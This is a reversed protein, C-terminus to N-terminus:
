FLETLPLITIEWVIRFIILYFVLIGAIFYRIWPRLAGVRMEVPNSRTHKWADPFLPRTHGRVHGSGIYNLLKGTYDNLRKQGKKNDFRGSFGLRIALLYVSALDRNLDDKENKRIMGDIDSFFKTGSICSHFLKEEVPFDQWYEKGAWDLKLIFIEDALSAMVYMAKRFAEVESETHSEKIKQYEAELYDTVKRNMMYIRQKEKGRGDESTDESKVSDEPNVTEGKLAINKVVVLEKYFECFGSLLMTNNDTM